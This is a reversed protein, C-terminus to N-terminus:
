RTVVLTGARRTAGAVAAFGIDFRGPREALVDFSAPTGPAATGSLGLPPIAVEGPEPTAIRIVVHTGRAVSRTRPRAADFTLERTPGTPQPREAPTRVSVDQRSDGGPTSSLSAIVASLGLVVAAFLLMARRRPM